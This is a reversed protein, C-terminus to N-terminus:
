SFYNLHFSSNFCFIHAITGKIIKLCQNEVENATLSGILSHAAEALSQTINREIDTAHLGLDTMFYTSFSSVVWITALTTNSNNFLHYKYYCETISKRNHFLIQKWISIEYKEAISVCKFRKPVFIKVDEDQSDHGNQRM